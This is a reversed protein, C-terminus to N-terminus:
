VEDSKDFNRARHRRCCGSVTNACKFGFAGLRASVYRFIRRRATRAVISLAKRLDVFSVSGLSLPGRGISSSMGQFTFRGAPSASRQSNIANFEVQQARVKPPAIRLLLIPDVCHIYRGYNARLIVFFRAVHPRSRPRQCM